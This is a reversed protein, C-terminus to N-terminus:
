ADHGEAHARMLTRLADAVPPVGDDLQWLKQFDAAELVTGAPKHVIGDAYGVSPGGAPEEVADLGVVFARRCAAAAEALAGSFPGIVGAYNCVVDAITGDRPSVLRVAVGLAEVRAALSEPYPGTERPHPRIHVESPGLLDVARTIAAVWRDEISAASNVATIYHAWPGGLVVLLKSKATRDCRCNDALPHRVVIVDLTPVFHRLAARIGEEFVLAADVRTSAFGLRDFPQPRLVRGATVLPFVGRNLVSRVRQVAVCRVWHRLAALGRRSLLRRGLRGLRRIRGPGPEVIARDGHKHFAGILRGPLASQIAVVRAGCERAASIFYQSMPEYDCDVILLDIRQRALQRSFRAAARHHALGRQPLMRYGEILGRRELDALIPKIEYAPPYDLVYATVSALRSISPLMPVYMSRFVYKNGTVLAARFQGDPRAIPANM